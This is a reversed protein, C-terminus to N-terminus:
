VLSSIEIGFVRIGEFRILIRTRSSSTITGLVM